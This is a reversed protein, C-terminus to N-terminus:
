ESGGQTSDNPGREKDSEDVRTAGLGVPPKALKKSAKQKNQITQQQSKWAKADHQKLSGNAIARTYERHYRRFEAVPIPIIIKPQYTVKSGSRQAGILVKTGYRAVPNGEVSSVFLGFPAAPDAM